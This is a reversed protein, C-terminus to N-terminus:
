KEWRGKEIDKVAEIGPYQKKLQEYRKIAEHRQTGDYHESIIDNYMRENAPYIRKVTVYYHVKYYHVKNDYRRYRKLELQLHSELDQIAQTHEFLAKRYKKLTNITEELRQIDRAAWQDYQKLENIRAENEYPHLRIYVTLDDRM